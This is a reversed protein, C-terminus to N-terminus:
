KQSAQELQRLRGELEAAKMRAQQLEAKSEQIESEQRYDRMTNGIDNVAGLGLGLGLGAMPNYGYGYMPAVMVPTAYGPSQIVTTRRDIVTPARSSKFSSAGGSSSRGGSRGGSRGAIVESSGFLDDYAFAPAVVAVNSMLYAAVLFSAAMRKGDNAEANLSTKVRAAQANPAFAASSGVCLSLAAVLAIVVSLKAM